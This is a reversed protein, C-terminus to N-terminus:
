IFLTITSARAEQVYTGIAGYADIMEERLDERRINMIEITMECAIIKGGLERFDALLKELSVVNAKKMRREVIWRGLGLLNM